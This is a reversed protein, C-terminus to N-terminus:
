TPKGPLRLESPGDPGSAGQVEANKVRALYTQAKQIQANLADITTQMNNVAQLKFTDIADMTQYINTFAAELKDIGITSSAAQENIAVSQTALLKSTSEILNSTTSNLATIQNLVLKQNALAQAVIVATRLASITTTTARDVGKILEINNRRVLDIALYGQISVALQTLLDQHKQRVYFLLDERLTKAKEPDTAEIENIKATLASDLHEAVYVYQALRQMTDWLHVKEQELAANDKRLEDQGQYLANLIANLHTQASEYRHFYDRLKDGFPIIGLLKRVGSAKAPDLDEITNRLDLLTRSVDSGADFGGKSMARMPADLMRNSVSAAARIDDDGMTRISEARKAFEPSHTDLTAIGGVYDSVMKDLGPLAAQDLPVMTSAQTTAVAGVAQPPSLTLETQPAPPELETAAPPPAATPETPPTTTM